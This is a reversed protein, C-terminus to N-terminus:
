SAAQAQAVALYELIRDKVKELGYHDEDLIARAKGLDLNDETTISWPLAVIWDLYTRIVSYEAAPRPSGGPADLEREAAKKVEEPLDAEDLKKRLEAAEAQM